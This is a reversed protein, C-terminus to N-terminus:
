KKTSPKSPLVQERKGKFRLEESFREVHHVCRGRYYTLVLPGHTAYQKLKTLEAPILRCMAYDSVKGRAVVVGAVADTANGIEEYLLLEREAQQLLLALDSATQKADTEARTPVPAQRREDPPTVLEVRDMPKSEPLSGCATVFSTLAVLALSLFQKIHM